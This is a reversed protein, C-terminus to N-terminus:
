VACVVSGSTAMSHPPAILRADHLSLSSLGTQGPQSLRDQDPKSVWRLSGRM